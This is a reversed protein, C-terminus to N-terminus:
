RSPMGPEKAVSVEQGAVSVYYSDALNAVITDGDLFHVKLASSCPYRNFFTNDTMYLEVGTVGDARLVASRYKLISQAVCPLVKVGKRGDAFSLVAVVHWRRVSEAAQLTQQRTLDHRISVHRGYRKNIEDMMRRFLPGHSSTDKLQFYGIYYHIMEHIVIDDLEDDAMEVRRSIKLRFDYNETKGLLTRRSRYCCQGAFTKANSMVIPIPPLKGGFIQANFADFRQRIYDATM